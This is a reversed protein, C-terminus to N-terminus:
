QLSARTSHLHVQSDRLEGIASFLKPYSEYINEATLTAASDSNVSSGNSRSNTHVASLTIRILGLEKATEYTLLPTHDVESVYFTATALKSKSEILASIEGRIPLAQDTGYHDLKAKTLKLPAASKIQDYSVADLVNVSSGTDVLLKMDVGCVKVDVRPTQKTTHVTFVYGDDSSSDSMPQPTGLQCVNPANQGQKMRQRTKHQKQQRGQGRQQQQQPQQNAGTSGGQPQSLCVQAYHNVKGCKYCVNRYAPCSRRGNKHFQGGCNM